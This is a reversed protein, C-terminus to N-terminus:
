DPLWAAAYSTLMLLVRIPIGYQLPGAFIGDGDAGSSNLEGLLYLSFKKIPLIPPTWFMHSAVFIILSESRAHVYFLCRVLWLSLLEPITTWTWRKHLSNDGGQNLAEPLLKDHHRFPCLLGKAAELCLSYPLTQAQMHIFSKSLNRDAAKKM